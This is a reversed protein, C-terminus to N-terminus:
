SVPEDQKRKAIEKRVAEMLEHAVQTGYLIPDGARQESNQRAYSRPFLAKEVEAISRYTKKPEKAAATM